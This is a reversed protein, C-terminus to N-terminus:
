STPDRMPMNRSVEADERPRQFLTHECSDLKVIVLVRGVRVVRINATHRDGLHLSQLWDQM